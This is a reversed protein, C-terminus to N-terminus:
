WRTDVLEALESTIREVETLTTSHLEYRRHRGTPDWRVGSDSKAYRGGIEAAAAAELDFSLGFHEAVRRVAAVPESILTAYSVGAWASPESAGIAQGVVAAWTATLYRSLTPTRPGLVEDFWENGSLRFPGGRALEIAWSPTNLVASAVVEGAPRHQLAFKMPATDPLFREALAGQWSTLKVVTPQGKSLGPGCLAAIVAGRLAALDDSVEVGGAALLEVGLEHLVPPERVVAVGTGAELLRTLLTSGCRGVHSIVGVPLAEADELDYADVFIGFPVRRASAGESVVRTLTVGQFAEPSSDAGLDVLVVQREHFDLAVPTESLRPAAASM